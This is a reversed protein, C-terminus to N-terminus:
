IVASYNAYVYCENPQNTNKNPVHLSFVIRICLVSKMKSIMISQADLSKM